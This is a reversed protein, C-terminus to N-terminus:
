KHTDGLWNIADSLAPQLLGANPKCAHSTIPFFYYEINSMEHHKHDYCIGYGPYDEFGTLLGVGNFLVFFFGPIFLAAVAIGVLSEIIKKM